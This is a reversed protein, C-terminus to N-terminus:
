NFGFRSETHLSCTKVGRETQEQSVKGRRETRTVKWSGCRFKM